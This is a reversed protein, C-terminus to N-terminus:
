PVPTKSSTRPGGARLPRDGVKTVRGTHQRIGPRPGGTKTVGVRTM